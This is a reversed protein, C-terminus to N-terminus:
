VICTGENARNIFNIDHFIGKNSKTSDLHLELPHVPLIVSLPRAIIIPFRAM